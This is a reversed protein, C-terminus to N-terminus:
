QPRRAVYIDGNVTYLECGDKTASSAKGAAAFLMTGPGFAASKNARTSTYVDGSADGTQNYFLTLGDRSVLPEDVPMSSIATGNGFDDPNFGNPSDMLIKDAGTYYLHLADDDTGALLLFQNNTVGSIGLEFRMGFAETKSSRASVYLKGNFREYFLLDSRALWPTNIRGRVNVLKDDDVDAPFEDNISSRNTSTLTVVDAMTTRVVYGTLEDTSLVFEDEAGGTNVHPVVIPASFPKLSDCRGSNSGSGTGDVPADMQADPPVTCMTDICVLGQDCGYDGVSGGPLGLNRCDVETECCVSKNRQTCAFSAVVVVGLLVVRMDALKHSERARMAASDALRRALQAVEVLRRGIAPKMLMKM